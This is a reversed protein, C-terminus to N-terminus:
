RYFFVTVLDGPLIAAPGSAPFTVTVNGTASYDCPGTPVGCPRMLLGNRFVIAFSSRTAVATQFVTPTNVVPAAFPFDDRELTLGYSQSVSPPQALIGYAFMLSMLGFAVLMFFNRFLKLDGDINM